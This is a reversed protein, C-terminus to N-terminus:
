RGPRCAPESTVTESTVCPGLRTAAVPPCKPEHASFEFDEFTVEPVPPRLAQDTGLLFGVELLGAGLQDPTAGAAHNPDRKTSQAGTQQQGPQDEDHGFVPTGDRAVGFEPAPGGELNPEQIQSM